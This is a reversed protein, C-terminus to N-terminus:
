FPKPVYSMKAQGAFGKQEVWVILLDGDASLVMETDEQSSGAQAEILGPGASGTFPNLRPGEKDFFSVLLEQTTADGAKDATWAVAFSGEANAVLALDKPNQQNTAIQFCTNFPDLEPACNLLDAPFGAVDDFTDSVFRAQVTCNDLDNAPCEFWALLAFTQEIVLQPDRIAGGIRSQAIISLGAEDTALADNVNTPRRILLNTRNRITSIAGSEGVFQNVDDEVRVPREEGIGVMAANANQLFSAGANNDNDGDEDWAALFANNQQALNLNLSAGNVTRYVTQLQAAVINVDFPSIEPITIGRVDSQIFTDDSIVAALGVTTCTPDAALALEHPSAAGDVFDVFTVAAGQEGEDNVSAFVLSDDLEGAGEGWVTLFTDAGDITTGGVNCAIASVDLVGANGSLAEVPNPVAVPVLAMKVEDEGADLDATIFGQFFPGEPAEDADEPRFAANEKAAAIQIRIKGEFGRVVVGLEEQENLGNVKEVGIETYNSADACADGKEQCVAVSLEQIDARADADLGSLDLEVIVSGPHFLLCGPSALVLVPLLLSPLKM